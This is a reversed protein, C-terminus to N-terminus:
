KRCQAKNSTILGARNGGQRGILSNLKFCTGGGIDIYAQRNGTNAMATAALQQCSPGTWNTYARFPFPCGKREYLRFYSIQTGESDYVKWTNGKRPFTYNGSGYIWACSKGRADRALHGSGQSKFLQNGQLTSTNACTAALNVAKVVATRKKRAALRLQRADRSSIEAQAVQPVSHNAVCLLSLVVILRKM